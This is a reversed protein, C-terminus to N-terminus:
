QGQPSGDFRQFAPGQAPQTATHFKTGAALWFRLWQWPLGLRVLVLVSNQAVTEYNLIVGILGLDINRSSKSKPRNRRM